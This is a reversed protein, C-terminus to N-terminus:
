FKELISLTNELFEFLTMLQIRRRENMESIYKEKKERTYKRLFDRHFNRIIKALDSRLKIQWHFKHVIIDSAYNWGIFTITSTKSLQFNVSILEKCFFIVLM